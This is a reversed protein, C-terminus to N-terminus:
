QGVGTLTIQAPNVLAGGSYLAVNANIPYVATVNGLGPTAPAFTFVLECNGNVALSAGCSSGVLSFGDATNTLGQFSLTVSSASNNTLEVGYNGGSTGVALTGFNHKVSTATLEGGAVGAGTVTVTGTDGGGGPLIPVNSTLTLTDTSAGTTTPAFTFGYTCTASAALSAGCNTQTTFGAGASNSFSLSATGTTNNTLTTSFVVTTGDTISGFNHSTSSVTIGSTAAVVTGSLAVTSATGGTPTIVISDNFTGTNATVM